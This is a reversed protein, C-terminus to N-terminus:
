REMKFVVVLLSVFVFLLYIENLFAWKFFCCILVFPWILYIEIYLYSRYILYVMMKYGNKWFGEVFYLSLQLLFFQLSFSLGYFIGYGLDVYMKYIGVEEMFVTMYFLFFLLMMPALKVYAFNPLYLHVHVCCFFLPILLAYTQMRSICHTTLTLFHRGTYMPPRSYGNAMSSSYFMAAPSSFICGPQWYKGRLLSFQYVWCTCDNKNWIEHFIMVLTLTKM